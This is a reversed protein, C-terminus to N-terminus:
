VDGNIPEEWVSEAMEVSVAWTRLGTASRSIDMDVSVTSMNGDLDRFWGWSYARSAERAKRAEHEDAIVWSSRMTVDNDDLDYRVPLSSGAGSAFHYMERSHASHYEFEADYGTKLFKGADLGFNFTAFRSRCTTKFPNVSSQGSKAYATVEYTFAANLPPLRDIVSQGPKLGEAIPTRTGDPAVRTVSFNSADPTKTVKCAPPSATIHGGLRLRNGDPVIPGYLKTESVSYSSTGQQVMIHAALEDDYVVKVDPAAPSLWETSFYRTSTATIGSGAIIDIRLAYKRKNKVNEYTGFTWQRTSGDFKESVVVAGDPGILSVVQESVGTVDNIVWEATAPMGTIAEGDVSPSNFWLQPAVAANFSSFNSWTGWSPDIGKTRVRVRYQGEVTLEIETSTETTLDITTARGNPDVVEVQAASQSTGDPHMRTWTVKVTAPIAYVYAFEGVTPANPPVITTVSNSERYASYLDGKRARVRVKVSGGGADVDMTTSTMVKEASWSGGNVSVQYRFDDVYPSASEVIVRVVTGSTKAVIVSKPTAPTTYVYGSQTSYPSYLGNYSRVRYQYRHNSSISNDTYNTTEKGLKAIQTWGGGDISREVLVNLWSNGWNSGLNWGISASTDSKRSAWCGTPASPTTYVYGSYAYGSHLGNSSRVRYQYRHNASVGGDGHSTASNGLKAIQTWGGGDTSREVLVNLWTNNWNGGRSWGVSISSDSGRSAWCGPPSSPTTYVYGSHSAQSWGANNKAHVAFQYCHNASLSNDTHSTRDAPIEAISGWSGGDVCRTVILGTYKQVVGSPHNQWSMGAQSDSNRWASMHSPPNPTRYQIAPINRWEACSTTTGVGGYGNVTESTSWAEVKIDRGSDWRDIDRSGAVNIVVQGRYTCAGAWSGVEVGNVAVHLRVGWLYWNGFQINCSWNVRTTTDNINQTSSALNIAYFTSGKRWAVGQAM